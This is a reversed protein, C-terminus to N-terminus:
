TLFYVLDTELDNATDRVDEVDVSMIKEAITTLSEVQGAHYRKLYSLAKGSPNDQLSVLRELLKIRTMQLLSDPFAGERVQKFASQIAELTQEKQDPDIGATVLFLGTTRDVSTNISYALGHEERVSQFLISHPFGGLLASTVSLRYVEDSGLTYPTRHGLLLWGQDGGAEETIEDPEEPSTEGSKLVPQLSSPERDPLMEVFENRFQDAIRSPNVNGTVITHLEGSKLTKRYHDYVTERDLNNVRDLDGYRSYRFPQERYLHRICRLTAYKRRNERLSEVLSALNKKEKRFFSTRFGRNQEQSGGDKEEPPVPQGLMRQFLTLAEREVDGHDRDPLYQPSVYSLSFLQLHSLGFKQVNVDISAGYLHQLREAIAQQDPYGRCGDRLIMPVLAHEAANPGMRNCNVHSVAVTKFRESTQIHIQYGPAPNITNFEYGEGANQLRNLYQNWNRNM